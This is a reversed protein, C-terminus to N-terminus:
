FKGPIPKSQFINEFGINKEQANIFFPKVTAHRLPYSAPEKLLREELDVKFDKRLKIKKLFITLDKVQYKYTPTTANSQLCFAADSKIWETRINIMPILYRDQNWLGHFINGLFTAKKSLSTVAARSKFGSAAAASHADNVSVNEEDFYGMLRLRGKRADAGYNLITQLYAIYPYTTYSDSLLEDGLRFNFAKFISSVPMNIFGVSDTTTAADLNGGSAKTIKVEVKIYSGGLDIVDHSPPIDIEISNATNSISTAPKHDTYYAKEVAMEMYPKSFLDLSASVCEDGAATGAAHNM